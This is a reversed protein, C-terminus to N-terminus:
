VVSTSTAKATRKRNFQPLKCCSPCYWKGKPPCRIRLCDFHFWKITCKVNDCCIMDGYCPQACYCWLKEPDEAEEEAAQETQSLVQVVGSSDAVPKRTYWKGIVEPLVGYVFVHEVKQAAEEYFVRDRAIREVAIGCETWVVFDGYDVNCVNLQAQVQYYYSHQRRLVWEGSTNKIMCFNEKEDDPLGDKFCHPCKVELIGKGCCDCSILGDPTAGIFPREMSIFLGADKM